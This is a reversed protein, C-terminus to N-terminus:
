RESPLRLARVRNSLSSSGHLKPDTDMEPSCRSERGADVFTQALGQLPPEMARMLILWNEAITLWCQKEATTRAEAFNHCCEQARKHFDSSKDVM